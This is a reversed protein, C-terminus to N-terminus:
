LCDSQNESRGEKKTFDKKRGEYEHDDDVEGVDGDGDGDDGDGDGDDGDGDDGDGGDEGRSSSPWRPAHDPWM